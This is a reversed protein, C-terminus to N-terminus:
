PRAGAPVSRSVYVLPGRIPDEIAARRAAPDLLALDLARGLALVGDRDLDRLARELALAPVDGLAQRLALLSVTGGPGKALAAHAALVRGCLGTAAASAEVGALRELLVNVLAGSV